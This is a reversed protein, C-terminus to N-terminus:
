LTHAEKMLQQLTTTVDPYQDAVNRDEHIDQSLDYLSFTTKTTDNVNLLVGKWNGQRIARRGGLEQFEWYLYDHQEQRGKGLLTPLMSIGDTAYTEKYGSLAAMTPMVDWFATQQDSDVGAAVKGPWRVLLPVRIGGEYLDRKIGRLPGSSKFYDPNAGGERHPGNDSTFVLVTNEAIGLSDLLAMVDGVYRDLRTVMAAFSALPRESNGYGGKTYPPDDQASIAQTYALYTSDHPLNLEAHPLTYTLLAFFPEDSHERIFQLAHRHIVDPAYTRQASSTPVNEPFDVRTENDWLHDPYYQHARRQCNYGYFADFGMRRPESESGPYGLGWKGFVGTQYGQAQMMKGLTFTHGPMPQQGEPKVEKNGRIFTHGTHLGTMLSARSPASVTCGAYCQTFRMGQAAMQALFPTHIIQQGYPSIDAYGLDDAIIFVVNPTQTVAQSCGVLTIAALFSVNKKM